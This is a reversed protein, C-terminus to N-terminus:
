KNDVEPIFRRLDHPAQTKREVLHIYLPNPLDDHLEEIKEYWEVASQFGCILDHDHLHGILNRENVWDVEVVENIEAEFEKEGTRTKRIWVEEGEERPQSRASTVRGRQELQKFAEEVGFIMPKM